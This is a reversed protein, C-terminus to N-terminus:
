KNKKKLNRFNLFIYLNLLFIAAYASMFDTFITGHLIIQLVAGAILGWILYYVGNAFSKLRMQEVMEDEQTEKLFNKIGFGMGWCLYVFDMVSEQPFDFPIFIFSILFVFPFPFLAYALWKWRRNLLPYKLEFNMIVM